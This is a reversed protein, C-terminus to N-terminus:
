AVTKIVGRVMPMRGEGMRRKKRGKRQGVVSPERRTRGGGKGRGIDRLRRKRKKVKAENYGIKWIAM